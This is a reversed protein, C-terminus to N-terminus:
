VKFERVYHSEREREPPPTMYDPGYLGRLYADADAPVFFLHDLFAAEKLPFFVETPYVEGFYHKRGTASTVLGTKRGLRISDDVLDFWKEPKRYSFFRGILSRSRMLAAGSGSALLLKTERDAYFHDMVCSAVAMLANARYGRITRAIRNEPVFDYPFIDIYVCAPQFPNEEGVGRLVTGKKFIQMFRNGNPWPSNPARLMYQDGFENEFIRILRDYDERCLALDMDDDWPIFGGHRVCGLLTGGVLFLKLGYKRCREDLDVAMEFLCRKLQDSEEKGIERISNSSRAAENFVEKYNFRARKTGM